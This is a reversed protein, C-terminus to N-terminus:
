KRAIGEFFSELSVRHIVLVKHLSRLTINARGKEMRWYQIPALKHEAAFTAHSKYGQKVRLEILRKGIRELLFPFADDPVNKRNRM